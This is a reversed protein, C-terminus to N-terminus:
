SLMFDVDVIFVIKTFIDIFIMLFCYFKSIKDLFIRNKKPVIFNIIFKNVNVIEALRIIIGTIINLKLVTDNVNQTDFIIAPGNIPIM